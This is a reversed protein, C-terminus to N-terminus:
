LQSQVAQKAANIGQELGHDFEWMNNSFGRQGGHQERRMKGWEGTFGIESLSSGEAFSLFM